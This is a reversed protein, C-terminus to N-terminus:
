SKLKALVELDPQIAQFRGAQDTCLRAWNNRHVRTHDIQEQTMIYGAQHDPDNRTTQGLASTAQWERLQPTFDPIKKQFGRFDFIGQISSPWGCSKSIEHHRMGARYELSEADHIFSLPSLECNYAKLALQQMDDSHDINALEFIRMTTTDKTPNAKESFFTTRNHSFSRGGNPAMHSPVCELYYTGQSEVREKFEKAAPCADINKQAVQLREACSGYKNEKLYPTASSSFDEENALSLSPLQHASSGGYMLSLAGGAIMAVGLVAMSLNTAQKGQPPGPQMNRQRMRKIAQGTSFPKKQFCNLCSQLTGSKWVLASGAAISGWGLVSPSINGISSM